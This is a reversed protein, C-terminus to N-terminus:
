KQWNVPSLLHIEGEHVESKWNFFVIRLTLIMSVEVPSAVNCAFRSSLLLM